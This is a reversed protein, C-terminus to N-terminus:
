KDKPTIELTKYESNDCNFDESDVTYYTVGGVVLAAIPNLTALWAVGSTLFSTNVPDIKRCEGSNNKLEKDKTQISSSSSCGSLVSVCICVTLLFKNKNCM